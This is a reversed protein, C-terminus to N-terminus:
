TAPMFRRSAAEVKEVFFAHMDSVSILVSKKNESTVLVVSAILACLDSGLERVLKIEAEYKPRSRTPPV